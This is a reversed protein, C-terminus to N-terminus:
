REMRAKAKNFSESYQRSVNKASFFKLMEDAHEAANKKYFSLREHFEMFNETDSMTDDIIKGCQNDEVFRKTDGTDTSFIPTGMSMAEICVIPLGEYHSTIILGDLIGIFEPTNSVYPIRILQNQLNNQIIYDDVKEKYVGDGVMIFQMKEANDKMLEKVLKLYRLPNKQETLRAVYSYHEKEKDLGYKDCIVDYSLNKKKVDRIYVDDVASYIVDIKEEPIQYESIFTDRILRTVAIFRDFTKVEANKYYEIWGEKTDYVDQAIIPIDDFLKRIQKTHQEFWPSNNCLWILEPHFIDKLEFLTYLYHEHETIEKLDFIYRCVGQLQYHLSGQQEVHRELTILCFDYEEKLLRMIEVTNREVGGVALFIPIVFILPKNNERKGFIRHSIRYDINNTGIYYEKNLKIEKNYELVDIVNKEISYAPLRMYRGKAVKMRSLDSIDTLNANYVFVDSLNKCAIKPFEIYSKSVLVYDIVENLLTYAVQLMQTIDLPEECPNYLYNSYGMHMNTADSVIVDEGLIKLQLQYDRILQQKRTEDLEGLIGIQVRRRQGYAYQVKLEKANEAKYKVRNYVTAIAYKIMKYANYHKKMNTVRMKIILSKYNDPINQILICTDNTHSFDYNNKEVKCANHWKIEAERESGDQLVFALKEIEAKCYDKLPAVRIAKIEKILEHEILVEKNDWCVWKRAENENFGRGTDWYVEHFPRKMYQFTFDTIRNKNLRFDNEEAIRLAIGYYFSFNFLAAYIFSGIGRYLARDRKMIKKELLVTLKKAINMSWILFAGRFNGRKTTYYKKLAEECNNVDCICKDQLDGHIHNFVVLEEGSSIQRNCFKDVSDYIHHHYAVIDPDYYIKMGAKQLRYGLEIDEFGYKDFDTNFYRNLSRLLGAPVSINSTYFHRFDILQYAPLGIFGFQECGIETIHRMLHNLKIEPHWEIRGLTAVNGGYKLYNEYHANIYNQDPFIDDGTFIIIKGTAIQLAANRAKSAGGKRNRIIKIPLDQVNQIIDITRDTSEDDSCIIEYAYKTVKDVRRWADFVQGLVDERNHTAFIVSVDM